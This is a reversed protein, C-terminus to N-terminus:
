YIGDLEILTESGDKCVTLIIKDGCENYICDEGYFVFSESTLNYMYINGCASYDDACENEDETCENEDDRLNLFILNDELAYIEAVNFEFDIQLVVNTTNSDIICEESNNYAYYLNESNEVEYIREYECRILEEGKTNIIGWAENKWDYRGNALRIWEGKCVKARGNFFNGAFIFQPEIIVNFDIDIWGWLGASPGEEYYTDLDVEGMLSVMILGDKYGGCDPVYLLPTNKYENPLPKATLTKNCILYLGNYGKLYGVRYSDTDSYQKGCIIENASHLRIESMSM